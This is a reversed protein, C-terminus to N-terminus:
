SQFLKPHNEDEKGEDKGGEKICGDSFVAGQCLSKKECEGREGAGVRSFTTGEATSAWVARKRLWPGGTGSQIM